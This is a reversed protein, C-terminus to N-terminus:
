YFIPSLKTGCSFVVMGITRQCLVSELSYVDLIFYPIIIMSITRSVPLSYYSLDLPSAQRLSIEKSTSLKKFLNFMPPHRIVAIIDAKWASSSPGVGEVREM